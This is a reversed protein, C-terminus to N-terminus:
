EPDAKTFNAGEAWARLVLSGNSVDFLWLIVSQASLLRGITSLMQGLFKDPAPETALVDLSYTLAEVQGRALQESARLAEAARDREIAIRMLHTALEIQELDQSSPSRP